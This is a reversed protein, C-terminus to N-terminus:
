HKQSNNHWSVHTTRSLSSSFLQQQQQHHQQQICM